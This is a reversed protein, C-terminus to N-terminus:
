AQPTILEVLGVDTNQICNTWVHEAVPDPVSGEAKMFTWLEFSLKEYCPDDGAVM